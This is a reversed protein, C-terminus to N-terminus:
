LLCVFRYEKRYKLFVPPMIRWRGVGKGRGGRSRVLRGVTM